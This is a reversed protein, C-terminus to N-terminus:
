SSRLWGTASCSACTSRAAGSCRRLAGPPPPPAYRRWSTSSARGGAGRAHLRAHRDHRRAPLRAAARRGGGSSRSRVDRRVVLHGRRVRRRRVAAGRRGGRGLRARRGARRRAAAPRSTRPRSTRPSSTPGPTPLASRWTGPARPSTSSASVGAIGCAEVLVPGLEWVTQKAFRPLRRAGVDGARRGQARGNCISQGATMQGGLEEIRALAAVAMLGTSRSNM